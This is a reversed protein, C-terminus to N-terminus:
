SRRRPGDIQMKNYDTIAVLNDLRNHAAFLAAEWIQGEDSEGDGIICFTRYDQRQLRAALAIGCACSLGQGLSGATIDVGPTLDPGRPQAPAHRGQEAHDAVAHPFVGEYALATYLAPGAHGKSLM